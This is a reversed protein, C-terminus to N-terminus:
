TGRKSDTLILPGDATVLVTHEFQAGISGDPTRLTWGNESDVAVTAGTTLFPEITVVLGEEFVGVTRRDFVNPVSPAEHIFRGVGHGCLNEVVFFPTSRAVAEVARGVGHIPAGARVVALAAALAARAARLLAACVSDVRGVPFSAGTDAWYGDREASVDINVLDGERLVREPSPIGHALEDNISICTAGPFEYALRPASRAGRRRLLRQALADLEGTTVGPAVARGLRDRIEAVIGGVARLGAVDVADQISM